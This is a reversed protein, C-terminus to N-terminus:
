RKSWAALAMSAELDKKTHSDIIFKIFDSSLGALVMDNIDKHDLNDPWICVSYGNLICKEIKTKTEPSRKENDYVIVLNDKHEKLDFLASVMEGGGVAISNPIFMSDIPGEFVYVKKSFDVTDLGYIKPKDSDLVIMIYKVESKKYLSRGQLAFVNKEKDFFPIVLRAEDHKLAEKSFKNPVLTNVYEMFNPVFFLKAHYPNPIKRSDVFMKCEHTPSLQSIKKLGKLPGDKMFVPKKMKNVFEEFKDDPKKLDVLDQVRELNMESYLNYDIRKLFKDFQSSVGCNHCHFLFKNEKEYFYARAKSKKSTSDGCLPCSFNYLKASKRKFNRLRSGLLGIYKTTIWDSM